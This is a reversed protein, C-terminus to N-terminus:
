RDSCRPPNGCGPTQYGTGNCAECGLLKAMNAAYVAELAVDVDIGLTRADGYITWVVDAMERAVQERDLKDVSIPITGCYFRAERLEAMEEGLCRGTQEDADIGFAEHFERLMDAAQSM